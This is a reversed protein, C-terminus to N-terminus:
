VRNLLNRLEAVEADPYHDLLANLDNREAPTAYDALEAALRERAVEANRRAILRDRTEAWLAPFRLSRRTTDYIKTMVRTQARRM